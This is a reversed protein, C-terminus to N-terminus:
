RFSGSVAPKMHPAALNASAKGGLKSALLSLHPCAVVAIIELSACSFNGTERDDQQTSDTINCGHAALYTSIGAVIGRTSRCTATLCYGTM